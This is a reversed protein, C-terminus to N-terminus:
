RMNENRFDRPSIGALNRFFRTFSAQEPFGLIQSITQVSLDKRSILLLKAKALIYQDIWTNAGCGTADNILKSMYKPTLCLREAYFNVKHERAYHEALLDMFKNYIILGRSANNAPQNDEFKFTNLFEFFINLLGCLAEHKHTLEPETQNLITEMLTIVQSISAISEDRLSTIPSVHYQQLNYNYSTLRLDELLKDGLIILTTCYDDSSKLGGFIHRAPLIIIDNTKVNLESHDYTWQATGRTVISIVLKPLVVPHITPFNHIDKIVVADLNEVNQVQQEFFHSDLTTM